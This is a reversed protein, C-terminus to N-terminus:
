IPRITKGDRGDIRKGTALVSGRVVNSELEKFLSSFMTADPATEGFAALAAKKVASVKDQRAQKATIAYADRLGAEALDKVKQRLEATGEAETPMPWPEKACAEALQVIAQIVPQFHQHGFMVAGLMVDEPLEK